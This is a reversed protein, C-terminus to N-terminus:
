FLTWKQMFPGVKTIKGTLDMELTLYPLPIWPNFSQLIDKMPLIILHFCFSYALLVAFWFFTSGSFIHFVFSKYLNNVSVKICSFLLFFQELYLCLVMSISTYSIEVMSHGIKCWFQYYLPFCIWFRTM